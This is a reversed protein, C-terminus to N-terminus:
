EAVSLGIFAPPQAPRGGARLESVQWGQNADGPLLVDLLIRHGHDVTRALSM